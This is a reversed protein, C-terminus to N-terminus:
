SSTFMLIFPDHNYNKRMIMIIINNFLVIFSYFLDLHISNYSGPLGPSQSQLKKKFCFVFCVFFMLLYGISYRIHHYLDQLYSNHILLISGM